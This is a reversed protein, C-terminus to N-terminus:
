HRGGRGVIRGGAHWAPAASPRDGGTDVVAVKGHAELDVRRQRLDVEPVADEVAVHTVVEVADFEVESRAEYLLRPGNSRVFRGKRRLM